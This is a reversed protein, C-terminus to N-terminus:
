SGEFPGQTIEFTDLYLLEKIRLTPNVRYYGKTIPM